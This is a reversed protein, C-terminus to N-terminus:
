AACDGVLDDVVATLAAVGALCDDTTAWEDPSHSVGTPNRVFVMATPVGAGAMVGADHGAGTAILPADDLLDAIRRTLGDDFSTAADWWEETVLADFEAVVDRVDDVVDRVSSAEPGRADLWCTVSSPIANVGGPAVDVKGVTALCGREQAAQRAAIVAAALGLMADEREDLATTGAHNAMGPVDIRWRGHPWIDSGVGVPRGLVDLVRGQEVHLEVFAGVRALAEDDRGLDDPRGGFRSIAEAMTTGTADRLARARDASLSGTVVRSGACTTGFRAGEEDVFSVLGVPRRPVVGRERLADIAALGSVVGLPGDFAGGDVVSDLHSGVVVGPEGAAVAADPDGWWAWQNGVRDTTVDLGRAACEGAFWERLDHDTRTWAFRRYGGTSGDLGVEELDAWMRHFARM